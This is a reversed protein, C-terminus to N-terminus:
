KYSYHLYHFGRSAYLNILIKESTLGGCPLSANEMQAMVSKENM